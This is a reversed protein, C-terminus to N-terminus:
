SRFAVRGFGSFFGGLGCLFRGAGFGFGRPGLRFALGGFLGGPGFGFSGTQGGFLFSRAGLRFALGGFFGGPGLSFSGTQGGLFFGGARLCLAPGGFFSGPGLGLSRTLCGLPFRRADLGFALGGFLRGPGFRLLGGGFSAAFRQRADFGFGSGRRRLLLLHRFSAVLEGVLPRHVFSRDVHLGILDLLHSIAM